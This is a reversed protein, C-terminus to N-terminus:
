SSIQKQNDEALEQMLKAINALDEALPLNGGEYIFGSKKRKCFL